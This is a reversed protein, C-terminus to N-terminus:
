PTSQGEVRSRIEPRLRLEVRGLGFASRLKDTFKEAKEHVIFVPQGSLQPPWIVRSAFTTVFGLEVELSDGFIGELSHLVSFVGDAGAPVEHTKGDPGFFMLFHDAAHPGDENTYEGIVRVDAVPLSWPPYFNSRYEIASEVLSLTGLDEVLKDTSM